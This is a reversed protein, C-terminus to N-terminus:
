FWGYKKRKYDEVKYEKETEDLVHRDYGEVLDHEHQRAILSQPHIPLNRIAAPLSLAGLNGELDQSVLGLETLLLCADHSNFHLTSGTHTLVWSQIASELQHTTM